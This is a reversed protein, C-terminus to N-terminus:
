LGCGGACYVQDELDLSEQERNILAERLPKCSRHLYSEGRMGAGHRISEDFRCADEFEDPPMARWGADSKYPCGICSSKPLSLHPFRENWWARCDDRSMKLPDILPYCNDVWAERSPAARRAEDTSIGIYVVASGPPIRQRPKYGMLERQKRRLPELKHEKTCQRRGVGIAGDPQRIYFPMSAFRGGGATRYEANAQRINGNSVLHLPLGARECQKALWALHDYVARPEWGTDAFIVHDPREIDGAIARMLM